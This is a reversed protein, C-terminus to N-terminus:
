KIWIGKSDIPCSMNNYRDLQAATTVLNSYGNASTGPAALAGMVAARVDTLTLPYAMAKTPNAGTFTANLAAATGARLLIEAKGELTTNGQFGLGALTTYAGLNKKNLVYGQTGSMTLWAGAISGPGFVNNASELDSTTITTKSWPALNNKWYGPTCGQCVVTVAVTADDSKIVPTANVTTLTATNLITKAGCDGALYPGITRSYTYTKSYNAGDSTACTQTTGDFPADSIKSDSLTVCRDVETTATSSFSYNATGPDVALPDEGQTATISATNTGSANSPVSAVYDCILAKGAAVTTPITATSGDITCGTITGPIGGLDDTLTTVDAPGTGSNSVTIAGYVEFGSDTAKAEVKVSYNATGSGTLVPLSMTTPAVSKDITWAWSRTFRTNATKSVSLIAQPPIPPDEEKQVKFNDTKTQDNDFVNSRSVWVKYEGGANDTDDYGPDLAVSHVMGFLQYCQAFNGDANVHVPTENAMGISSGLVVGEPSTVQV